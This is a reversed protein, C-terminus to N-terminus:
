KAKKKRSKDGSSNVNQTPQIELLNRLRQNDAMINKMKAEVVKQDKLQTSIEHNNKKLASNETKLDKVQAQLHRIDQEKSTIAKNRAAVVKEMSRIKAKKEDCDKQMSCTQLELTTCATVLNEIEEANETLQDLLNTNTKILIDDSIPAPPCEYNM